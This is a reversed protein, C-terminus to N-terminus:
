LLLDRPNILVYRNHDTYGNELKIISSAVGEFHFGMRLLLNISDMNDPLCFAEIRHIKNEEFLATILTSVAELAYGKKQFAPLFKYGIICSNYPAPLFQGFSVTGIIQTADEALTVFYRAYTGDLFASYEGRALAKQYQLTYFQGPKKPEKSIFTHMGSRYFHLIAEADSENLIRLQLRGTEYRFHM